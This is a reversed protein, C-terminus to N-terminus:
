WDGLWLKTAMLTESDGMQGPQLHGLGLVYAFFAFVDSAPCAGEWSPKAAAPSLLCSPLLFLATLFSSKCLGGEKQRSQRRSNRAQKPPALEKLFGGAM